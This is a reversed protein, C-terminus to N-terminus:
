RELDSTYAAGATLKAIQTYRQGLTWAWRRGSATITDNIIPSKLRVTRPDDQGSLLVIGYSGGLDRTGASMLSEVIDAARDDGAERLQQVGDPSFSVTPVYKEIHAIFPMIQGDAYFGFRGGDRVIDSRFARQPQCVYAAYRQYEPWANRAAVIVTDDASLLGDSEFLAILESLLFRTQESVLRTSDGLVQRIALALAAFSFWVVRTAAEPDVRDPNRLWAPQVPDPTLVFLYATPEGVLREAHARLQRRAHGEHDYDGVATKTEFWWTFHASIRADPTSGKGVIQNEFSVAQLEDGMEAATQLLERVIGLDIREFVALTSSTM